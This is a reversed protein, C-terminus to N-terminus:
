TQQFPYVQSYHFTELKCRFYKLAQLCSLLDNPSLSSIKGRYQKEFIEASASALCISQEVSPDTISTFLETLHWNIERQAM